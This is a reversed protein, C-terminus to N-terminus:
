NPRVIQSEPVVVKSTDKNYLAEADGGAEYMFNAKDVCVEAPEGPLSMVAHQKANFVYIRPNKLYVSGRSVNKEGILWIGAFVLYVM